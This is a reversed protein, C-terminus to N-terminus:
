PEGTAGPARVQGTGTEAPAEQRYRLYRKRVGTRSMGARRAIEAWTLGDQDRLRLILSDRVGPRKRRGPPRTAGALWRQVTRPNVALRAATAYTTLGQGYLRRAEAVLAEDRTRTV